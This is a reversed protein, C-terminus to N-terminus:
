PHASANRRDMVAQPDLSLDQAPQSAGGAFGVPSGDLQIEVAGANPTTLKMGTRNPVRYTDGPQLTRGITVMGNADRVIVPTSEHARLIIRPSSNKLGYVQGQPLSPPAAAVPPPTAAVPAPATQVPAAAPPPPLESVLHAPVPAVPPPQSRGTVLFYAGYTLMALLLIAVAIWGIPLGRESQEDIYPAFQPEEGRGMNETKFREVSAVPDFGLYGAYARIFGTAYTRGPLSDIRDEELAELHHKRIKLVQSVKALDDGRALRAAKLDHGISTLPAGTDDPGDDSHIRRRNFVGDAAARTAKTM